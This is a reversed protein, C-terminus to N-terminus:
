RGQLNAMGDDCPGSSGDRPRRQRAIGALFGRNRVQLFHRTALALTRQMSPM